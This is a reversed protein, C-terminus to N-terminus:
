KKLLLNDVFDMDINEEVIKALKEISSDKTTEYPDEGNFTNIGKKERIYNLFERRFNYNHFIGHFYTGIVNGEVAGDFDSNENNGIGKKIKFLPISGNLITTGEHLEYGKILEGSINDFIKVINNDKLQSAKATVQMLESCNRNTIKRRNYVDMYNLLNVPFEDPNIKKDVGNSKFEGLDGLKRQEWDDSFNKFRIKPKM